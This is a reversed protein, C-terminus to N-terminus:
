NRAELKAKLARYHDLEAEAREAAESRQAEKRSIYSRQGDIQKRLVDIQNALKAPVPKESSEIDAAHALLGALNKDQSALSIRAANLNQDLMDLQQHQAHRLDEETAYAALMQQDTRARNQAEQKAAEAKALEIKDQAAEEPTRARAVRKIVIGRSNVVEYGFRGVDSPLSDTYHLNGEADRWKYRNRDDSANAAVALGAMAAFSVAVIRSLLDHM